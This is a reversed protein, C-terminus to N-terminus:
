VWRQQVLGAVHRALASPGLMAGYASLKNLLGPVYGAKGRDYAKLGGEAVREPGMRAVAPMTGPRVGAEDQFGTDTFGPSLSMARVGTGRLEEHLAETFSQVFAKTAGYAAGYPGPQFAAISSVNIVGGRGREIMGGLAAHTLRMVATVNLEIMRAQRDVDLETFRGYAGFGANNVLLDIPEDADRVRKEVVELEEALTLDAVLVEVQVGHDRALGEGLEVLRDESRAVLVLDHGRAALRRALAAGIGSSGGTVLARRSTGTPSPM